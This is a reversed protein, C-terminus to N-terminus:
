PTTITRDVKLVGGENGRKINITTTPFYETGNVTIKFKQTFTQFENNTLCGGIFGVSQLDEIAVYNAPFDVPEYTVDALGPASDVNSFIEDFTFGAQIKQGAQDGLFFLYSRYVGCFNQFIVGGRL